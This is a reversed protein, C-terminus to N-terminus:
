QNLALRANWSAMQAFYMDAKAQNDPAYSQAKPFKQTIEDDVAMMHYLMEHFRAPFAPSDTLGLDTPTAKYDFEYTSPSAPQSTFVLRSNVIDIYCFGTQNLYKRRDSWNIVRYPTYSTGVFVARPVGNDDLSDANDTSQNNELMHEFTAPLAVYPVTTSLTGTASSKLFEWPRDNCVERYKKNLLALEQASSLETADDVYLEFATIIDAAQM